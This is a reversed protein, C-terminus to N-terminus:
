VFIQMATRKETTVATIKQSIPANLFRERELAPDIAQRSGNRDSVGIGATM